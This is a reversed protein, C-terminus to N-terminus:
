LFLYNIIPQTKIKCSPLTPLNLGLLAQLNEFLCSTLVTLTLIWAAHPALRGTALSCLRSDPWGPRTDSLATVVHFIIACIILHWEWLSKSTMQWILHSDSFMGDEFRSSSCVLATPYLPFSTLFFEGPQWSISFLLIYESVLLDRPAPCTASCRLEGVLQQPLKISIVPNSSWM